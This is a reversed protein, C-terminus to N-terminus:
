PKPGKKSRQIPFLMRVTAGAPVSEITVFGGHAGVIESVIALGVGAGGSKTTFFPEFARAMAAESIGPGNDQVSIELAGRARPLERGSFRFGARYRTIVRLRARKPPAVAEIANKVINLCAEHLHDPDVEIEPLSPDYHLEFTAMAGFSAKALDVVSDIVEHVNTPRPRPHFFTEFATFRDVIRVIRAGEERILSLLPQQEPRADRGLLQAAGTIGALPNKVEHSLMKAIQVFAEVDRSPDDPATRVPVLVATVGGDRGDPGAFVDVEFPSLYPGSVRVGRASVVGGERRVRELADILPADPSLVRDLSKGNLTAASRGLMGEAASNVYRVVGERSLSLIAVVLGDLIHEATLKSVPEVM